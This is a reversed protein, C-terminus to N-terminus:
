RGQSIISTRLLFTCKVVLFQNIVQSKAFQLLSVPLHFFRYLLQNNIGSISPPWKVQFFSIFSRISLRTYCDNSQFKNVLIILYLTFELIENPFFKIVLQIDHSLQFFNMTLFRFNQRFRCIFEVLIWFKTTVM